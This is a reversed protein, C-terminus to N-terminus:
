KIQLNQRVDLRAGPVVDGHKLAEAILSKSPAAPPTPPQVIYADPILDPEFIVVASSKRFSLSVGPGSVKEIGCAQLADSLYKRLSDARAEIMKARANADSAWQKVSAADAELARVFLAVNEAKVEVAGSLSDLTDAVTQPDMDLDALKRAADQYENSILWLATSM